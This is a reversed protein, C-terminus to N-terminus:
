IDKHQRESLHYERDWYMTVVTAMSLNVYCQFM